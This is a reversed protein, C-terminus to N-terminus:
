ETKEDDEAQEHLGRLIEDLRELAENKTDTMQKEKIEIEKKKLRDSQKEGLVDLLLSSMRADGAIARATMSVLLAQENTMDDGALMGQKKFGQKFKDSTQMALLAELSEKMSKKRRRAEGSAIGGRRAIEKQEDKTRGSQPKLNKTGDRPV